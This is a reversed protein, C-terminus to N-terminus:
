ASELRALRQASALDWPREAEDLGHISADEEDVVGGDDALDGAEREFGGVHTSDNDVTL